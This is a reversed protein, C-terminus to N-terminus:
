LTSLSELSKQELTELTDGTKLRDKIQHDSLAFIEDIKIKDPHPEPSTINFIISLDGTFILDFLYTSPFFRYYETSSLQNGFLTAELVCLEGQEQNEPIIERLAKRIMAVDFTRGDMFPLKVEIGNIVLSATIGPETIVWRRIMTTRSVGYNEYANLHINRTQYKPASLSIFDPIKETKRTTM